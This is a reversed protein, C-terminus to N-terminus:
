ISKVYLFTPYKQSTLKLNELFMLAHKANQFNTINLVSSQLSCCKIYFFVYLTIILNELYNLHTEPGSVIM